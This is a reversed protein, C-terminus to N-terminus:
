FVAQLVPYLVSVIVAATSVLALSNLEFWSRRGVVVQDGSQLELARFQPIDDGALSIREEGRVVMVNRANGERTVGGARAIVDRLTMTLDVLYLDPNRVEGQVGIRRLVTVEVSPNRLFAGYAARLSDQLSGASQDVVKVAGLKPLVVEGTGAVHFTDSMEPENWIKLAIRDGPRLRAEAHPTTGTSQASATQLAIPATCLVAVSLAGM